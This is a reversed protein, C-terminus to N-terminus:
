ERGCVGSRRRGPGSERRVARWVKCSAVLLYGACGSSASLGLRSSATAIPYHTKPRRCLTCGM